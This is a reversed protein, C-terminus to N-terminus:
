KGGGAPTTLVELCICTFTTTPVGDIVVTNAISTIYCDNFAVKAYTWDSGREPSLSLTFAESRRAIDTLQAVAPGVAKVAMTFTFTHPQVVYGVNDAELSHFPQTPTSFTPNFSDVPSIPETGRMITLRTDWKLPDPM